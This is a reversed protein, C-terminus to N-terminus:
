QKAGTAHCAAKIIGRGRTGHSLVANGDWWKAAAECQALTAFPVSHVGVGGDYSPQAIAIILVFAATNM